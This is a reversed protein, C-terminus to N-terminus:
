NRFPGVVMLAGIMVPGIANVSLYLLVQEAPSKILRTKLLAHLANLTM